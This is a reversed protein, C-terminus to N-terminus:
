VAFLFTLADWDDATIYLSSPPSDHFRPSDGCSNLSQSRSVIVLPPISVSDCATCSFM